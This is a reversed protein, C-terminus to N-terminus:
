TTCEEQTKQATWPDPLIDASSFTFAFYLYLVLFPFRFCILSEALSSNIGGHNLDKKVWKLGGVSM